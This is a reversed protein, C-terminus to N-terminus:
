SLIWQNINIKKKNGAKMYKIFYQYVGDFCVMTFKVNPKCSYFNPIIEIFTNFV